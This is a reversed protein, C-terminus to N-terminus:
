RPEIRLWLKGDQMNINGVRFRRKGNPWVFDNPIRVGQLLDGVTVEDGEHVVRVEDRKADEGLFRMLVARPLPMSGGSLELLKLDISQGLDSVEASLAGSAIIRWGKSELHVGVRIADDAFSVAPASLEPPLQGAVDPAIQNIAALWRTVAAGDLAFDFPKRRVLQDSFSDAETTAERRADALGLEDLQAPRYWGPKHQLVFWFVLLAVISTCASSLAMRVLYRRWKSKPPASQVAATKM